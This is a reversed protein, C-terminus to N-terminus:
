SLEDRINEMETIIQQYLEKKYQPTNNQRVPIHLIQAIQKIIFFDHVNDCSIHEQKSTKSFNILCDSPKGFNCNYIKSEQM